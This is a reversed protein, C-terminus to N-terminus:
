NWAPNRERVEQELEDLATPSLNRDLKKTRRENRHRRSRMRLDFAALARPPGLQLTRGLELVGALSALEDVAVRHFRLGEADCRDELARARRAIELCYWFCLQYDHPENGQPWRLPLVGPDDPGLYYKLGRLTRGPVTDLRWLSLAVPRPDRHLHIVDPRYGLEILSELFGKSAVHSTEAYIPKRSRAIRPLKRRLWFEGAADPQAQVARMAESFKPRPEHHASVCRFLSLCFALHQTGCRGTSVTFLLRKDRAPRESDGPTM